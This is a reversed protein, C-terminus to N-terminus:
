TATTKMKRNKDNLIRDMALGTISTGPKSQGRLVMAAASEVRSHTSLKFQFLNRGQVIVVTHFQYYSHSCSVWM